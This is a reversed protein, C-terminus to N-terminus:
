RTTAEGATTDAAAARAVLLLLGVTVANGAGDIINETSLGLLLAPISSALAMGERLQRLSWAFGALGALAALWLAAGVLGLEYLVRLWESHIVRNPDLADPRYAYPFLRLAIRGGSGAGRGALWERVSGQRWADWVGQYMRLRFRATGLGMGDERDQGRLLASATATLRNAPEAAPQKHLGRRIAPVGAVVVVIAAVRVLNLWRPRVLSAYIGLTVLAGATWTRSGNAALGAFLVFLTLTRWAERPWPRWLTWAVMAALLAAFQQAAVFSTFRQPMNRGAYGFSGDVFCITQLLALALSACLFWLITKDTLVGARAARELMALTLFIAAMGAALKVAALPYESWLASLGALAALALWLRCPWATHLRDP